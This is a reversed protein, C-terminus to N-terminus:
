YDHRKMYEKVVSTLLNIKIPNQCYWQPLSLSDLTYEIEENIHYEHNALEYML